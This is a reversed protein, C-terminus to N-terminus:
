DDNRAVHNILYQTLLPVPRGTAAKGKWATGAIDLHAWRLKRTFRHLFSAATIAGADRGGINAVDAVESKLQDQYDEWLPLEWARDGIQEGAALLRRALASQNSFLGHAHHGLAVVCAGTLTAMNICAAPDYEKGVWALADCLVLRGEADTNLVEVTLGAYTTIVDGPKVANGDPLNEAAAVVGVLNIPLKLEAAAALAGFVSAGGGMDFKMEDMKASPKLSIGGADFTIGKGVLVIPKEDNKGNRYEMAILRPPQRSGAAVALIAGMGLNRMDSEDMVRTTIPYDKAMQEARAALDAPTCHNAPANALDRAVNSGKAIAIGEALGQEAVRLDSRHPVDFTLRELKPTVIKARAEEGRMADYRYFVDETALVAQQINWGYDRGKINLHSLYNVADISGTEKLRKAAACQIRRYAADDLNRERGLGVLMVRDAFIGPVQHVILTEGLKGDMDGRRMISGILGGSLRDIIQAEPTASRREFVGVVVCAVRQKDPNGSKAFYQM